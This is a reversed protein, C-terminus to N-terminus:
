KETRVSMPLAMEFSFGLKSSPHTPAAPVRPDPSSGDAATLAESSRTRSAIPVKTVAPAEWASRTGEATPGTSSQQM